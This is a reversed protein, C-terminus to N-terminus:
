LKRLMDSIKEYNTSMLFTLNEANKPNKETKYKEVGKMKNWRSKTNTLLITQLAKSLLGSSRTELLTKEYDSM